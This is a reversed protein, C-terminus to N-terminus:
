LRAYHPFNKFLIWELITFVLFLIFLIFMKIIFSYSSKNLKRQNFEDSVIVATFVYPLFNLYNSIRTFIEYDIGVYTTITLDIISFLFILCCSCMLFGYSVILREISNKIRNLRSITIEALMTLFILSFFFYYPTYGGSIIFELPNEFFMQGLIIRKEKFFINLIIILITWFLYLYTLKPLRKKIFYFEGLENRKLCFLFLSIQFFVPVALYGVNATLINSLEDLKLKGSLLNFLDAHLAVVIISFIARLFYFGQFKQKEKSQGLNQQAIEKNPFLNM